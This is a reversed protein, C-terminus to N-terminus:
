LLFFPGLRLKMLPTFPMGCVFFMESLNPSPFFLVVPLPSFFPEICSSLFFFFSFGWFEWFLTPMSSCSFPPFSPILHANATLRLSLKHNSPHPPHFNISPTHRRCTLIPDSLPLPTPLVPPSKDPPFLASPWQNPPLPPIRNWLRARERRLYDDHSGAEPLLTTSSFRGVRYVPALYQFALGQIIGM